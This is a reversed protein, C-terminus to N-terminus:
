NVICSTQYVLSEDSEPLDRIELEMLKPKIIVLPHEVVRTGTFQQFKVQYFSTDEMLYIYGKDWDLDRIDTEEYYWEFREFILDDDFDIETFKTIGGSCRSEVFYSDNSKKIFFDAQPKRCFKLNKSIAKGASYKREEGARFTYNELNYYEDTNIIRAKAASILESKPEPAVCTWNMAYTPMSICAILIFLYKNKDFNM